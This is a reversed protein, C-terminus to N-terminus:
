TKQITLHESDAAQAVMWDRFARLAPDILTEALYVLHYALPTALAGRGQVGILERAALERAVLARRVLAFGRGAVAAEVAGNSHAFVVGQQWDVTGVAHVGRGSDHTDHTDHTECWLRWDGRQGDHLLRDSTIDSLRATRRPAVLRPSCVPILDDALLVEAKLGPYPGRGHRVAFHVGEAQLDVLRNTTSVHVDLLPAQQLFDQLRPVLWQAAFGPTCSVLLVRRETAAMLRSTAQGIRALAESCAAQYDRGAATLALGRPQRDFLAAGLFSELKRVQQSVAGPTVHLEHAAQRVSLHRATAEFFRVAILPPLRM